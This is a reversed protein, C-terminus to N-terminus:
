DLTARTMHNKDRATRALLAHAGLIHKFPTSERARKAHGQADQTWLELGDATLQEGTADTGLEAVKELVDQLDELESTPLSLVTEEGSVRQLYVKKPKGLQSEADDAAARARQGARRLQHGCLCLLALTLGVAILSASGSRVPEDVADVRLTPREDAQDTDTLSGHKM